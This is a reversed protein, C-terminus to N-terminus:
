DKLAEVPSIEKGASFFRLKGGAILQIREVLPLKLFQAPKMTTWQNPSEQVHVTDFRSTEPRWM